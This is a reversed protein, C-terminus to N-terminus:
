LEFVSMITSLKREKSVNGSYRNPPSALYDYWRIWCELEYRKFDTTGHETIRDLRHIDYYLKARIKYKSQASGVLYIEDGELDGALESPSLAGDAIRGKWYEMYNLLEESAREKVELAHLEGRAHVVGMLLGVAAISIIITATMVEIFGIGSYTKKLTMM